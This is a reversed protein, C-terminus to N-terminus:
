SLDQRIRADVLATVAERAPVDTLLYAAGLLGDPEFTIALDVACGAPLRDVRLELLVRGPARVAAELVLRHGTATTGAALVRWFGARDGARLLPGDPVPWRRGGGLALRDLVGRVVFPAADVYWHRGPGAGALVAWAEDASRASTSRRGSTRLSRPLPPHISLRLSPRPSLSPRGMSLM